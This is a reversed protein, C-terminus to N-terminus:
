RPTVIRGTQRGQADYQYTTIRDLETVKTKLFLTPHWETTVTRAQPTGSAETRSTELGRDNYDFTTLNGKADTKTKLLGRTDYTFTSNSSPCNPTPEGEISTIYKAGQIVQFRYTADKGYENTVTTSGDPNYALTVKGASNAHQSSIARGDADYTWSAYSVGKQDIIATLLKPNTASYEYTKEGGGTPYIVKNMFGSINYQYSSTKGNFTASRPQYRNFYKISLSNGYVDSANTADATYTITVTPANPPTLSLLRGTIDFTLKTTDSATYIWNPNQFVLTGFESLEPTAVNGDRSFLSVKGDARVLAIGKADLVLHDSYSYTWLGNLSNYFRSFNIEGPRSPKIDPEVQLKIGSSVNVPNGVYKSDSSNCGSVAKSPNVEKRIAFENQSEWIGSQPNYTKNAPYKDGNSSIRTNYLEGNRQLIAYCTLTNEWLPFCDTVIFKDTSTSSLGVGATFYQAAAQRPDDFRSCHSVTCFWAFDLANAPPSNFTSLGAVVPIALISRKAAKFYEM